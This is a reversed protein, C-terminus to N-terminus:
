VSTSNFIGWCACALNALNAWNPSCQLSIGLIELDLKGSPLKENGKEENDSLFVQLALM